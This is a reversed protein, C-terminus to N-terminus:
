VSICRRNKPDLCLWPGKVSGKPATPSPGTALRLGKKGGPACGLDNGYCLFGNNMKKKNRMGGAIKNPLIQHPFIGDIPYKM